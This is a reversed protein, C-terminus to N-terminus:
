RQYYQTAQAPTAYKYEYNDLPEGMPKGASSHRHASMMKYIIGRVGNLDGVPQHEKLTHWTNFSLGECFGIREADAVGTQTPVTIKALWQQQTRWYVSAKNIPTVEDDIYTEVGFEFCGQRGASLDSVINTRLYNESKPDFQGVVKDGAGLNLVADTLFAAYEITGLEHYDRNKEVTPSWKKFYKHLGKLYDKEVKNLPPMSGYGEFKKEACPRTIYKVVREGFKFPTASWYTALLLNPEVKAGLLLANFIVKKRDQHKFPNLASKFYQKITGNAEAQFFEKADEAGDVFFTPANNMVFDTTFREEEPFTALSMQSSGPKVGMVKVSMSRADGYVDHNMRGLGNAWRIWAKHTEGPNAFLGVRYEPSINPNVQFEAKACAHTKAHTDRRVTPEKQGAAAEANKISEPDGQRYGREVTKRYGFIEVAAARVEASLDRFAENAEPAPSPANESAIGRKSDHSTCSMSLLSTASVAALLSRSIVWGHRM